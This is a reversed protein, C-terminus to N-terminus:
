NGGIQSQGKWVSGKRIRHKGKNAVNKDAISMLSIDKWIGSQRIKFWGKALEHSKFKGSKRTAWPRFDAPPPIIIRREFINYMRQAPNDGRVEIRLHTFNSPLSLTISWRIVAQKWGKLSGRGETYALAQPTYHTAVKTSGLITKWSRQNDTSIDIQTYWEYGWGSNFIGGGPSVYGSLSSSPISAQANLSAVGVLNYEVKVSTGANNNSTFGIGYGLGANHAKTLDLGRARGNPSGVMMVDRPVNPDKKWTGWSEQWITTAM